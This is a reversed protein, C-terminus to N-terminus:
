GGFGLEARRQEATPLPAEATAVVPLALSRERNIEVWRKDAASLDM